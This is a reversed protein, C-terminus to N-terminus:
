RNINKTYIQFRRYNLIAINNFNLSSPYIKPNRTIFIYINVKKQSFFASLINCSFINNIYLISFTPFCTTKFYM